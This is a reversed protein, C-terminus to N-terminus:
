VLVEQQLKSACDYNKDMAIIPHRYRNEFHNILNFSQVETGGVGFTSFVHLLHTPETMFLTMLFLSFKNQSTLCGFYKNELEASEALIRIFFNSDDPFKKNHLIQCSGMM